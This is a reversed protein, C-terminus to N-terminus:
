MSITFLKGDKWGFTYESDGHIHFKLGGDEIWIDGLRSKGLPASDELYPFSSLVTDIPLSECSHAIAGVKVVLSAYAANDKGFPPIDTRETLYILVLEHQGKNTPHWSIAADLNRMDAMWYECLVNSDSQAERLAGNLRHESVIVCGDDSDNLVAVELEDVKDLLFAQQHTRESHVSWTGQYWKLSCLSIVIVNSDTPVVIWYRGIKANPLSFRNCKTAITRASWTAEKNPVFMVLIGSLDCTLVFEKHRIETPEVHWVQIAFDNAYPVDTVKTSSDNKNLFWGEDTKVLNAM